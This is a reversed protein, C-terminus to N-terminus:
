ACVGLWLNCAGALEADAAEMPHGFWSRAKKLRWQAQRADSAGPVPNEAWAEFGGNRRYSIFIDHAM